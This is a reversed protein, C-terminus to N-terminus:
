SATLKGFLKRKLTLLTLSEWGEEWESHLEGKEFHRSSSSSKEFVKSMDKRVKEEIDIILNAGKTKNKLHLLLTEIKLNQRHMQLIKMKEVM